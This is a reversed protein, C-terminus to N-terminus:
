ISAYEIKMHRIVRRERERECVCVCVSERERMTTYLVQISQSEPNELNIACRM